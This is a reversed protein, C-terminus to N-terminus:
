REDLCISIGWRSLTQTLAQIWQWIHMMQNYINVAAEFDKVESSEDGAFCTSWLLKRENLHLILSISWALVAHDSNLGIGIVSVLRGGLLCVSKDPPVQIANRNARLTKDIM